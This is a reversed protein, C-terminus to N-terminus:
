GEVSFELCSLFSPNPFTTSGPFLVGIAEWHGISTVTLHGARFGHMQTVNYPSLPHYKPIHM